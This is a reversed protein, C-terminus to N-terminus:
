DLRLLSKFSNRHLIHIDFEINLKYYFSYDNSFFLDFIYFQSTCSTKQWITITHVTERCVEENIMTSFHIDNVEFIMCTAPRSIDDLRRKINQGDLDVIIAILAEVIRFNSCSVLPFCRHTRWKSLLVDTTLYARKVTPEDNQTSSDM